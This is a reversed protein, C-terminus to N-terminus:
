SGVAVGQIIQRLPPQSGRRIGMNLKNAALLQRLNPSDSETKGLKEWKLYGNLDGNFSNKFSPEDFVSSGSGSTLYTDVTEVACDLLANIATPDTAAFLKALAETCAKRSVKVNAKTLIDRLLDLVVLYFLFRTQRRTLEPAGRGFKYTDAARQLRYAAHLDDIGFPAEGETIQEVIRKYVSGNPLFPANKSFALGAEMLWGSGYVKLLDFANAMETFKEAEPHQKQYATRSDWGGRQIELFVHYHDRMKREWSRFDSTLTVFDKERVANQSNTYRTIAQVLGEGRDGVRVIKTVVVGQHMRREWDELEPSSGTGGAELKSRCVDWITRTTQCGNVIFPEVLNYEGNAMSSFDTVVLTIGNNYLGFQEPAHRLTDAIGKNVKGRGGLFRRVNKEYIQDLDGTKNRYAKLFEYLDNLTTAGVLLDKGSPVLGTKMTVQLREGPAPGELTRQYITDISVAEVDFYAGLRGRGLNRLDQLARKEEESLPVETAFVLRMKDQEGARLKFNVLRELLGEALSSLKTRKGDLTDVIKQGEELLSKVGKFASGYKSQVLYWTDGMAAEQGSEDEASSRELYAVDIGGDGSGDCFVLDEAGAEIDLWQTILKSAFRRGLDITSPQEARVDALWQERYAEFTVKDAETTM